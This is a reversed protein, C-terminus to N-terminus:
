LIFILCIVEVNTVRLVVCVNKNMCHMLAYIHIGMIPSCEEVLSLDNIIQSIERILMYFLHYNWQSKKYKPYYWTLTFSSVTSPQFYFLFILWWPAFDTRFRCDNSEVFKGRWHNRTQKKVYMDICWVM